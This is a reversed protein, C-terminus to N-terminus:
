IKRDNREKYELFLIAQVKFKKMESLFQKLKNKWWPNTNILQLEPDFHNLIEINYCHVCNNSSNTHMMKAYKEVEDPTTLFICLSEVAERINPEKYLKSCM